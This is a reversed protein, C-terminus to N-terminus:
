SWKTRSRRARIEDVAVEVPGPAFGMEDLHAVDHVAPVFGPLDQVQDPVQFLLRRGGAAPDVHQEAVM